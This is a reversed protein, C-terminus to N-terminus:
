QATGDSKLSAVLKDLGRIITNRVNRETVRGRVHESHIVYFPKQDLDGEIRVWISKQIKASEIGYAIPAALAAGAATQIGGANPVSMRATNMAADFQKPDVTAGPDFVSVTFLRLTVAKGALESDMAKSLWAKMLEPAPPSINDDGYFVSTGAVGGDVHSARNDSPREDLFKFSTVGQVPAAIHVESTTGCASLLMVLAWSLFGSATRM